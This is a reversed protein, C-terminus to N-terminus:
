AIYAIHFNGFAFIREDFLPASTTQVSFDSTGVGLKRWRTSTFLTVPLDGFFNCLMWHRVPLRLGPAQGGTQVFRNNWQYTHM